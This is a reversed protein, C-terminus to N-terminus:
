FQLVLINTWNVLDNMLLGRNCISAFCWFAIESKTLRDRKDELANSLGQQNRVIVLISSFLFIWLFIICLWLKPEFPELLFWKSNSVGEPQMFFVQM